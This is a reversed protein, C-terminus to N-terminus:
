EIMRFRCNEVRRIPNCRILSGEPFLVSYKSFHQAPLPYDTSIYHAGSNIAADRYRTDNIRAQVTDADARTRVIYGQRVLRPIQSDFPNSRNIFAAEPRGPEESTFMIRGELSPHGEVYRDRTEDRNELVFMIKGRAESVTPWGGERIAENLTAHSGRLDDPMLLQEKPFVSLIEADISDLATRDFKLPIAFEVIEGDDDTLLPLPKDKTEVLVLIPFHDPHADSWAKIEQLCITFTLCSSRFDIDQVHLVKLGPTEMVGTSDFDPDAPLGLEEALSAGLPDAYLGGEPDAFVDLEIQRIGLDFQEPLPLHTYQITRSFVRSLWHASVLIKKFGPAPEIHYSNHTGISQIDNLRLDPPEFEVFGANAGLAGATALAIFGGLIQSLRTIKLEM